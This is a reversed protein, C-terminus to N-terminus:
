TNAKVNIDTIQNESIILNQIRPDLYEFVTNQRFSPSKCIVHVKEYYEPSKTEVTTFLKGRSTEYSYKHFYRVFDDIDTEKRSKLHKGNVITGNTITDYEEYNKSYNYMSFFALIFIPLILVIIPFNKLNNDEIVNNPKLWSININHLEGVKLDYRKRIFENEYYIDKGYLTNEYTTNKYTYQYDIKQNLEKSYNNNVKTITANINVTKHTVFAYCYIATFVLIFIKACGNRKRLLNKLIKKNKKNLHVKKQLFM